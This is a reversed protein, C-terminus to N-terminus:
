QKWLVQSLPGYHNTEYARYQDSHQLLNGREDYTWTYDTYGDGGLYLHLERVKRGAEDYTYYIDRFDTQEEWDYDTCIRHAHILQGLHYMNTYDYRRTYANSKEIYYQEPNGWQDFTCREKNKIGRIGYAETYETSYSFRLIPTTVGEMDLWVAPRIMGHKEQVGTDGHDLSGDSYVAAVYKGNKGSSRLLWWGCGSQKNTYANRSLAYATPRCLWQCDTLSYTQAEELSLLFVKDSAADPYKRLRAKEEPTFATDAFTGNLWTRLECTRWSVSSNKDHFSRSDLGDVAIALVSSGERDLVQWVIPEPGNAKNGDQEYKGFTFTEGVRYFEAETEEYDWSSSVYYYGGDIATKEQSSILLGNDDYRNTFTTVADPTGKDTYTQLELPNGKEDFRTEEVLINKRYVRKTEPLKGTGYTYEVIQQPTKRDTYDWVERVCRAGRDYFYSVRAQYETHVLDQYQLVQLEAASARAEMPLFWAATLLVCLLLSLWRNKM